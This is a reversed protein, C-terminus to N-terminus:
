INERKEIRNQVPIAEFSLAIPEGQELFEALLQGEPGEAYIQIKVEKPNRWIVAKAMVHKGGSIFVPLLRSVEISDM